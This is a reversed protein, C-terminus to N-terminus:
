QATAKPRKPPVIRRFKVEFDEMSEEHCGLQRATKKFQDYQAKKGLKPAARTAQKRKM